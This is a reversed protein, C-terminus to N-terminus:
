IMDAPYILSSINPLAVVHMINHMLYVLSYPVPIGYYM